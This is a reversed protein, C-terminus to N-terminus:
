RHISVIDSGQRFTDRRKNSWKNHCNYEKLQGVLILDSRFNGYVTSVQELKENAVELSKIRSELLEIYRQELAAITPNPTAM